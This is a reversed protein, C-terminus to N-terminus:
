RLTTWRPGTRAWECEWGELRRRDLVRRCLLYCLSLVGVTGGLAAIGIVSAMIAVAVTGPPPDAPQGAGTLWVQVRAGAPQGAIGPTTFTSLTGSLQRGDPARWRASAVLSGDAGASQTLVAVGPHLRAAAADESRCFSLGLLAAGGVAALFAALLLLAATSELRDSPRRLTSRGVLLRAMRRVRGPARPKSSM